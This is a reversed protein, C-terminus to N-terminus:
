ADKESSLSILFNRRAANPRNPPSLTIVVNAVLADAATTQGATPDLGLQAKMIVKLGPLVTM